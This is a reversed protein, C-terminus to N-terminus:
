KGARRGAWRGAKVMALRQRRCDRCAAREYARAEETLTERWERQRERIVECM